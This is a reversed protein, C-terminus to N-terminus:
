CLAPCLSKRNNLDKDTFNALIAHLEDRECTMRQLQIIMKELKMMPQELENIKSCHSSEKGFSGTPLYGCTFKSLHIACHCSLGHKTVAHLRYAM